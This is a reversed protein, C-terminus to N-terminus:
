GSRRARCADALSPPAIANPAIVRWRSMSNEGSTALLQRQDGLRHARDAMALRAVAAGEAAAKAVEIRGRLQGVTAIAISAVSSTALARPARSSAIRSKGAPKMVGRELRVLQQGPDRHPGPRPRMPEASRRTRAGARRSRWRRPRPRQELQVLSPRTVRADSVSPPTAAPARQADRRRFCRRSRARARRLPRDRRRCREASLDLRQAVGEHRSTGGAARASAQAARAAARAPVPARLPSSRREAVDRDRDVAALVLALTRPRARVEGVEQAVLEAEGAGVDAALVAHAARARHQDVARRARLQRISATCASPALTCVTSPSARPRRRQLRQLLSEPVLVAQLAAEAGRADQHREGLQQAVVRLRVFRRHAVRQGPM